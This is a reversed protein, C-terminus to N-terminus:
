PVRCAPGFQQKCAKIRWDIEEPHETATNSILMSVLLLVFLTMM